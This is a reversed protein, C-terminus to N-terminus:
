ILIHKMQKIEYALDKIENVTEYLIETKDEWFQSLNNICSNIYKDSPLSYFKTSNKIYM